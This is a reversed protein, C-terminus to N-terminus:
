IQVCIRQGLVDVMWLKYQDDADITFNLLEYNFYYEKSLLYILM